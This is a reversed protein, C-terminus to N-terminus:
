NGSRRQINNKIMYDRIRGADEYKEEKIFKDLKDNLRSIVDNKSEIKQNEDILAEFYDTMHSIDVFYIAKVVASSEAEDLESLKESNTIKDIFEQSIAKNEILYKALHLPRNNFLKILGVLNRYLQERKKSEDM